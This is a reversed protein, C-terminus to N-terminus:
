IPEEFYAMAWTRIPGWLSNGWGYSWEAGHPTDVTVIVAGQQILADILTQGGYGELDVGLDRLRQSLQNRLRPSPRPRKKM